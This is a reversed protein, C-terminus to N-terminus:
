AGVIPVWLEMKYDPSNMDGTLYYEHDPTGAHKLRNSPFYENESHVAILGAIKFAKKTEFHVNM